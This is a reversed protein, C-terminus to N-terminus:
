SEAGTSHATGTAIEPDDGDSTDPYPAQAGWLLGRVHHAAYFTVLVGTIPMALYMQGYTVPLASLEQSWANRAAAWGGWVLVVLAFATVVLQVGVALAREVGEPTRRALFEVAIHGREGFVYASAFLGLWVFSMRAGEDTWTAPDGLVQRSFVQWVVVVLLLAFLVVIIWHLVTDLFRKLSAM